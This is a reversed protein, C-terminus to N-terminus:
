EFISPKNSCSLSISSWIAILIFSSPLYLPPFSLSLSLSDCSNFKSDNDTIDVTATPAFINLDAIGGGSIIQGMFRESGEVLLDNTISM